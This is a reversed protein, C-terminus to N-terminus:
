LKTGRMWQPTLAMRSVFTTAEVRFLMCQLSRTKRMLTKLRNMRTSVSSFGMWRSSYSCNWSRKWSSMSPADRWLTQWWVKLLTGMMYWLGRFVSTLLMSMWLSSRSRSAQRIKLNRKPTKKIKSWRKPRRSKNYWIKLSLRSTLLGM